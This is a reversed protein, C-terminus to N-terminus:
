KFISVSINDFAEFRFSGGHGTTVVELGASGESADCGGGDGL